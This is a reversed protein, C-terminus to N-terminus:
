RVTIRPRCLSNRDIERRGVRLSLYPRDADNAFLQCNVQIIRLIFPAFRHDKRRLGQFAACDQRHEIQLHHQYECSNSGVMCGRHIYNVALGVIAVVIFITCVLDMNLRSAVPILAMLLLPFAILPLRQDSKVDGSCQWGIECVIPPPVTGNFLTTNNRATM